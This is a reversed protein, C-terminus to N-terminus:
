DRANYHAAKGQQSNMRIGRVYEAKSDWARGNDPFAPVIGDMIGANPNDM